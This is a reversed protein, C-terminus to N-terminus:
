FILTASVAGSRLGIQPSLLLRRQKRINLRQDVEEYLRTVGKATFYGVAAGAMVDTAWHANDNIRSLGVLTAVGYAIPPVWQHDKYVTAVSTAMAFATSTHSSPLSTNNTEKAIGDFLHNETTTSPRYRHFTNKLTGTIVASAMISGLSVMGAKQLKSDKFVIGGLAATAAIPALNSPKGLPQVVYAIADAVPNRNRQTFQQLPEDVFTYTAIWIGAGAALLATNKRLSHKNITEQKPVEM